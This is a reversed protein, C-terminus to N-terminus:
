NKNLKYFCFTCIPRTYAQLIIGECKYSCYKKNCKCCIKVNFDPEGCEDCKLSVYYEDNNM